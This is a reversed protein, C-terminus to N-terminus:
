KRASPVHCVSFYSLEEGEETHWTGDPLPLDHSEVVDKDEMVKINTGARRSERRSDM